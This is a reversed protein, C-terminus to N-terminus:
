FGPYFLLKRVDKFGEGRRIAYVASEECKIIAANKSTIGKEEILELSYEAALQGGGFVDSIIIAEKDSDGDGIDVIIVPIDEAHALEVINNMVEPKCPSIVLADIGQSILNQVGSLMEAEDNKQDHFIVNIGLQDARSQVGGDMYQFFENEMFYVSWGITFKDSKASNNESSTNDNGGSATSTDAKNGCAALAFVLIFSALVVLSRKM